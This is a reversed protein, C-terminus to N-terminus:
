LPTVALRRLRRWLGLDGAVLREKDARRLAKVAYELQRAERPLQRGRKWAVVVPLRARTYKAGKGANHALLRRELDDTIGAYLSGDVCRLIYVIYRRDAM